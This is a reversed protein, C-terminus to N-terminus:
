LRCDGCQLVLSVTLWGSVPFSFSCFMQSSSQLMCPNQEFLLNNIKAINESKNAKKKVLFTM